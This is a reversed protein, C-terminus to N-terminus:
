PLDKLENLLKTYRKSLVTMSITFVIIAGMVNIVNAGSTQINYVSIAFIAGVFGTMAIKLSALKEKVYDKQTM